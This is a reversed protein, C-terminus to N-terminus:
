RKLQKMLRDINRLTGEDDPKIELAKNYAELAENNRKLRQLALAQGNLASVTATENPKIAVVKGFSSVAEEFDGVECLGIGRLLWAEWFKPRKNLAEDYAAIAEKSKDLSFQLRVGQKFLLEFKEEQELKSVDIGFMLCINELRKTISIPQTM